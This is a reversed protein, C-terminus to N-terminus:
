AVTPVPTTMFGRILRVLNDEFEPNSLLRVDHLVASRIVSSVATTIVFAEVPSLPKRGAGAPGGGIRLLGTIYAQTQGGAAPGDQILGAQIIRQRVRHRSGFAGLLARVVTRAPNDGAEVTSSKLTAEIKGQVTALEREVLRAVIEEKSRFYQYLTGISVGAVAAIRNTTLAAVGEEDLIRVTAELMLEVKARARDQVPLRAAPAQDSQNKQTM